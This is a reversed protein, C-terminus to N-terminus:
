GNDVEEFDDDSPTYDDPTIGYGDDGSADLETEYEDVEEPEDPVEAPISM